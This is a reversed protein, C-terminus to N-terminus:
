SGASPHCCASPPASETHCVPAGAARAARGSGSTSHEGRGTEGASGARRIARMAGLFLRQQSFVLRAARLGATAAMDSLPGGPRGYMQRAWRPLASFALASVPPLAPKLV